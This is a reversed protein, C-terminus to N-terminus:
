STKFITLCGVININLTKLVNSIERLTSGDSIVDDVLLVNTNPQFLNSNRTKQWNTIFKRDRSLFHKHLDKNQSSKMRELSKNLGLISKQSYNNPLEDSIKSNELDKITGAPIFEASLKDSIMKGFKVSLTKSSQPTTVVDINFDTFWPSSIEVCKELIQNITGQPINTKSKITPDKLSKIIQIPDIFDGDKKDVKYISFCKLDKTIGKIWPHTGNTKLLFNEGEAHGIKFGSPTPEIIIENIYEILLKKYNNM